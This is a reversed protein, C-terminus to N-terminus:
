EIRTFYIKETELHLSKTHFEFLFALRHIEDEDMTMLNCDDKIRCLEAVLRERFIRDFRRDVPNPDLM